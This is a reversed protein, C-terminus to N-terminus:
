HLVAGSDPSGDIERSQKNCLGSVRWPAGEYKRLGYTCWWYGLRKRWRLTSLEKANRSEADTVCNVNEVGVSTPIAAELTSVRGFVLKGFPLRIELVVVEKM